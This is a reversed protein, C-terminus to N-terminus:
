SKLLVVYLFKMHFTRVTLGQCTSKICVTEDLAEGVGRGDDAIMRRAYLFRCCCQHANNNVIGLLLSGWMSYM